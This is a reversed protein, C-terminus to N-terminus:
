ARRTLVRMTQEHLAGKDDDDLYHLRAQAM